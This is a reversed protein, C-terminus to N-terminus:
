RTQLMDSVKDGYEQASPDNQTITAMRAEGKCGIDCGEKVYRAVGAVHTMAGLGARKCEEYLKDGDVWSKNEKLDEFKQTEWCSWYDDRLDGTYSDLVPVNKNPM